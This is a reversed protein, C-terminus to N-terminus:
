YIFKCDDDLILVSLQDFLPKVITRSTTFQNDEVGLSLGLYEDSELRIDNYITQNYCIIRSLNTILIDDLENRPVIQQSYDTGDAM